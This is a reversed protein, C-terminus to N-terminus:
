DAKFGNAKVVPEWSKSYNRLITTLEEPSTPAAEMGYNDIAEKVQPQAMAQRIAVNLAPVQAPPSKAPLDFGFFEQVVLNKLGQESLTRIQPTFLNRKSCSTALVRIKGGPIYEPIPEGHRAATM